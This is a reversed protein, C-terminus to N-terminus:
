RPADRGTRRLQRLSRSLMPEHVLIEDLHRAALAAFLANGKPTLTLLVSRRDIASPSRTILGAKGLRDLMQVAAHHTLLLQGSLDRVTMTESPWTGIALLAQYQQQTIGAAKSIVESAALFKRLASRFSALGGYHEPRLPM